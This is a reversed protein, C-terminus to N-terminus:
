LRSCPPPVFLCPLGGKRLGFFQKNKAATPDGAATSDERRRPFRRTSRGAKNEYSRRGWSHATTTHWLSLWLHKRTKSSGGRLPVEEGMRKEEVSFRERRAARPPLGDQRSSAAPHAPEMEPLASKSVEAANHITVVRARRAVCLPFVAAMPAGVFFLGYADDRCWSTDINPRCGALWRLVAGNV